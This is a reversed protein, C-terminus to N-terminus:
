NSTEGCQVCPLNGLVTIPQKGEALSLEAVCYANEQNFFLIRELVGTLTRTLEIRGHARQYKTVGPQLDVRPPTPPCSGSQQEVRGM